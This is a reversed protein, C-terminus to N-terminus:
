DEKIIALNYGLSRLFRLFKSVKVDGSKYMRYYQAGVDPMNALESIGMQSIRKEQRIKDLQDIGDRATRVVSYSLREVRINGGTQDTIM